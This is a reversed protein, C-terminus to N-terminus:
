KKSQIDTLLKNAYNNMIIQGKKTHKHFEKKKALKEERRKANEERRKQDEEKKMQREKELERRKQKAELLSMPRSIEKASRRPASDKEMMKKFGINDEDDLQDDFEGRLFRNMPSNPNQNKQIDKEIKSMRKKLVESARQKDLTNGQAFYKSRRHWRERSTEPTRPKYPSEAKHTNQFRPM